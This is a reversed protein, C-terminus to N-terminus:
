DQFITELCTFHLRAPKNLRYALKKVTPSGAAVYGPRISCYRLFAM